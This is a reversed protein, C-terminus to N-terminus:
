SQGWEELSQGAADERDSMLIARGVLAYIPFLDDNPVMLPVDAPSGPTQAAHLIAETLNAPLGTSLLVTSVFESAEATPDFHHRHASAPDLLSSHHRAAALAIAGVLHRAQPADGLACDSAHLSAWFGPPTHPVGIKGATQATRGILGLPCSPDIARARQQWSRDAKGLDHFGTALVALDAITGALAEIDSDPELRRLIAKLTRRYDGEMRLRNGVGYMVGRTHEWLSQYHSPGRKQAFQPQTQVLESTQAVSEAPASGFCLGKAPHLYAVDPEVILLEGPVLYHAPEINIEDDRYRAVRAGSGAKRLLAYGQGLSVSSADLELGSRLKEALAGAAGDAAINLVAVDVSLIERFASAILGPSKQQSARDFLNLSFPTRQFCKEVQAVGDEGEAGSWAANIWKREADWDLNVSGSNGILKEMEHLALKVSKERYPQAWEEIRSKPDIVKFEGTQKEARFWRACRGSRQVLTDVPAPDSVVLPASIDLGAEAVQNTLLIWDGQTSAKGFRRHVTDEARARWRAPMRNHLVTINAQDCGAGELQDYIRQLREVTNAFYIRKGGRETLIQSVASIDLDKDDKSQRKLILSSLTVHRKSQRDALGEDDITEQDVGVIIAQMDLRKAIMRAISDPLTATMVVTQLDLNKRFELIGFLITLAETSINWALHVEDLVLTSMLLAGAVAHGASLPLSLPLGPIACVIQDYTTVVVEETFLWSGKIQGHHVVANIPKGDRLLTCVEGLIGSGLARLPVGYVMRKRESELGATVARTKGIGTPAVLIVSGSNGPQKLTKQVHQQFKTLM